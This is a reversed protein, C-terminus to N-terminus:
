YSSLLRTRTCPAQQTSVAARHITHSRTPPLPIHAVVLPAPQNQKWQQQQQLHPSPFLTTAQLPLAGALEEVLAAYAPEKSLVSVMDLLAEFIIAHMCTSAAVADGLQKTLNALSAEGSRDVTSARISGQRALHATLDQQCRDQCRAIRALGEIEVHLYRDAAGSAAIVVTAQDHDRKTLEEGM